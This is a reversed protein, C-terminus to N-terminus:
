KTNWPHVISGGAIHGKCRGDKGCPTVERRGRECSVELKVERAFGEKFGLGPNNINRYLIMDCQDKAESAPM